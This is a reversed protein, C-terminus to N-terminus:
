LYKRNRAAVVWTGTVRGEEVVYVRDHLAMTPCIHRPVAYVMGGIRFSGQDKVSIVLHEESHGKERVLGTDLFKLRPHPMESAVSKHGLDLCVMREPKSIVRGALVAAHLFDMDTFADGYGADWLLTTGPSLTRNDHQAHIPFTPSGGCVVEEVRIGMTGLGALLWEVDEFGADCRAKRMEPDNDRIHGDYVQLGRFYFAQDEILKRIIGVALLTHMGTRHMGTDLDVFVGVQKGAKAAQKKLQQLAEISDVTVAMRSGPFLDMIRFFEGVAPGLLPYALLIDRGGTAAVMELETLTSCKFKDIGSEIQMRVVEALKHTKVHPRLRGADGAIAIMRRINERIRDPYVLLAPTSISAENQPRYWRKGATEM